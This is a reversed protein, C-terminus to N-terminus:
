GGLRDMYAATPFSPRILERWSGSRVEFIQPARGIDLRRVGTENERLVVWELEWRGLSPLRVDATGGLFTVEGRFGTAEALLELGPDLRPEPELCMLRATVTVGDEEANMGEPLALRARWGERLHLERGYAVGLFEETRVDEAAVLLDVYSSATLIVARGDRVLVSRRYKAPGPEPMSPRWGIVGYSLHEGDAGFVELEFPQVLGRLDVLALRPDESAGSKPVVVDAVRLLTEGSVRFELQATCSPLFPSRFDGDSKVTLPLHGLVPEEDGELTASLVVELDEFSLLDDALVRGAIIGNQREGELLAGWRAPGEGAQVVSFSQGLWWSSFPILLLLVIISTVRSM